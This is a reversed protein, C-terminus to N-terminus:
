DRSADDYAEAFHSLFVDLMGNEHPESQAEWREVFIEWAKAKKSGMVGSKIKSEITEPDISGLLRALAKQMAAFTAYQHKKIDAFSASFSEPAGMCGPRNQAFMIEMAESTSPIFKMPNNESASIMTRDSSKALKKAEARAKLLSTLEDTSCRLVAGIDQAVDIPARATFTEVPVGAAEAM